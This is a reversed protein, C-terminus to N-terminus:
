RATGNSNAGNHYAPGPIAIAATGVAYEYAYNALARGRADAVLAKILDRIERHRILARTLRERRRSLFAGQLQTALRAATLWACRATGVAGGLRQHISDLRADIRSLRRELSAERLQLEALGLPAQLHRRALERIEAEVLPEVPTKVAEFGDECGKEAFESVMRDSAAHFGEIDIRAKKLEM